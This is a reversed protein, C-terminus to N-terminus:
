SGPRGAGSRGEEPRPPPSGRRPGPPASRVLLDLFELTSSDMWHLDECVLVTPGATAIAGMFDVLLEMTRTRRRAPLLKLPAHRDSRFLTTYPFLTSRPPRRIM